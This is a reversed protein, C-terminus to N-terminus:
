QHPIRRQDAAQQLPRQVRIIYKSPAPFSVQPEKPDFQKLWSPDASTNFKYIRWSLRHMASKPLTVQM